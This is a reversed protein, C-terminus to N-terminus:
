LLPQVLAKADVVDRQLRLSRDPRQHAVSSSFVM